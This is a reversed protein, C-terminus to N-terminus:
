LCQKYNLFQFINVPKKSVPSTADLIVETWQLLYKVLPRVHGVCGSFAWPGMVDTGADSPELGLVRWGDPARELTKSRSREWKGGSMYCRAGGSWEGEERETARRPDFGLCTCKRTRHGDGRNRVARNRLRNWKM